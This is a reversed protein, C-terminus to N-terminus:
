EYVFYLDGSALSSSGATLDATGAQINRVRATTYDTGSKAKVGTAAFTGSAIDGAAHTHSAAAKGSLATRLDSHAEGSANHASVQAAATGAPDAGVDSATLSVDGSLARGNVTRSLPVYDMAPLQAAPVKGGGDLEALGEPAGRLAELEERLLVGAATVEVRLEGDGVSEVLEARLLMGSAREVSLSQSLRYVRYLTEGGDATRAYLGVERLTYDTEAEAASLTVPLIVGGETRRPDGLALTQREETLAAATLDTEGSGGAARVLEVTGGTLATELLERGKTTFYGLLEM